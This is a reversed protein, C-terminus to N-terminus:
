FYTDDDYHSLPKKNITGRCKPCTVYRVHECEDEDRFDVIDKPCFEIRYHCHPCTEEWSGVPKDSIVRAM